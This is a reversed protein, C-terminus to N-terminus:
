ATCPRTPAGMPAPAALRQRLAKIASRWQRQVAWNTMGLKAGVSEPSAHRSTPLFYGARFLEVIRRRREPLSAIARDLDRDTDTRQEPAAVHGHKPDDIDAHPRTRVCEPPRCITKMALYRLAIWFQVEFADLTRKSADDAVLYGIFRDLTHQRLLESDRGPRDKILRAIYSEARRLIIPYLGALARRDNGHRAKRLLHVIVESRIYDRDYTSHIACLDVIEALPLTLCQAIKAEVDPKRLYPTGDLRHSRLPPVTLTSLCTIKSAIM